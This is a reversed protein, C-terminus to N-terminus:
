GVTWWRGGKGPLADDCRADGITCKRGKEKAVALVHDKVEDRSMPHVLSLLSRGQEVLTHADEVGAVRDWNSSVRQFRTLVDSDKDQVSLVAMMVSGNTILADLLSLDVTHQVLKCEAKRRRERARRARVTSQRRKYETIEQETMGALSRRTKRKSPQEDRAESALEDSLQSGALADGGPAPVESTSLLFRDKARGVMTPPPLKQLYGLGKHYNELLQRTLTAYDEEDYTEQLALYPPPASLDRRRERRRKGVKAPEDAGARLMGIDVVEADEAMAPSASARGAEEPSRKPGGPPALLERGLVGATALPYRRQGGTAVATSLVQLGRDEPHEALPWRASDEAVAVFAFPRRGPPVRRPGPLTGAYGVPGYAAELARQRELAAWPPMAARPVHPPDRALAWDLPAVPQRPPGPFAPAVVRTGGTMRRAAM